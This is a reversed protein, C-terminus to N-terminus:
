HPLPGRNHRQDDHHEPHANVGFGEEVRYPLCSGPQEVLRVDVHREPNLQLTRDQLLARLGATGMLGLKLEASRIRNRGSIMRVTTPVSSITMSGRTCRREDGTKPVNLRNASIAAITAETLAYAACAPAANPPISDTSPNAVKKRTSTIDTPM